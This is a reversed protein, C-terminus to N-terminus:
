SGSGANSARGVRVKGPGAVPTLEFSDGPRPMTVVDIGVDLLRTRLKQMQDLEGHVLFAQKCREVLPTCLAVLEDADAHASFGNLVEIRAKVKHKQGFIRVEPRREVLKRGLTHAAQFGPILVTNRAQGINNKLHHRIRGAECMGSASIIVCPSRRRHLRKSEEVDRIYTCTDAGLIDGTLRQFERAERDFLEPHLRFVETANVALPSDVYVPIRPIRGAEQLQHLFYVITQTRGISFAPVIVKGNQAVTERVIAALREKLDDGPPHRRGGYTSETILYDCPFFPRPDRLIPMSCRGVDGTFLLTTPGDGNPADYELMISVAGLMHGTRRFTARLRPTVHFPKDVPMSQFLGLAAAADEDDYLPEVPPMESQSALRHNRRLLKKTLYKADEAQIHASDELILACLDRTAPTSYITGAFGQKVLLPLRGCHDLHAHSLVVADITAPDIPFQRNKADSEARRGQFMGCDLVITRGDAEIIHMSGTVEQAAGYFTLKM